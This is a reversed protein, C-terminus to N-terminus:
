KSKIKMAKEVAWEGLRDVDKQLNKMDKNNIIKRYIVTMPLFGSLQNLIGGFIM